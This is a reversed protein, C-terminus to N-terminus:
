RLPVGALVAVADLNPLNIAADAVAQVAPKANFAVGLAATALMDLDNAGDGVAFCADLPVEAAQAWERLKSAKMARDVVDGAVRGTLVGDQVELENALWYDLGLDEALPKLVQNFGGSVVAVRHGASHFSEVLRQAGVSLKVTRRVEDLVTAPLGALQAVRQHLSQAFDLEGRMAAETVAAVEAEKGAHAAILEIVEQQILTSDVDMILFKRDAERLGSPVVAVDVGLAAKALAERVTVLWQEPVVSAANEEAPAVVALESAEFGEVPVARWPGEVAGFRGIVSAAAELAADNLEPAYALATFHSQM